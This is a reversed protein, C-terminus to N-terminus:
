KKFKSSILNFILNNREASSVFNKKVYNLSKTNKRDNSLAKTLKGVIDNVNNPDAYVAHEKCIEEAFTLKMAVLPKETIMAELYTASFTELLSSIFIVDSMKYIECISNYNVKGLNDWYKLADINALKSHMSKYISTNEGLTTVFIINLTEILKLHKELIKFIIIHNKHHFASGPIFVVKANTYSKFFNCNKYLDIFKLDFSNAVVSTKEKDFKNKNLWGNRSQFTQFVMFDAKKAWFAQYAVLLKTFILEKVSFNLIKYNAHTLYPNSIGLVHTCKFNVYAPGAMTYVLDINNEEVIKKLRNRSKISKSPSTKFLFLQNKNIFDQDILLNYVQPSVCCFLNDIKKFTSLFEIFIYSNKAGGGVINTTCNFLIKKKM